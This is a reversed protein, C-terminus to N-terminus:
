TGVLNPNTEESQLRQSDNEKKGKKEGLGQHGPRREGTAGEKRDVPM